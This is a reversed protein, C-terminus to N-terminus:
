LVLAVIAPLAALHRRTYYLQTSSLTMDLALPMIQPAVKADCELSSNASNAWHADSGKNWFMWRLMGNGRYAIFLTDSTTMFEHTRARSSEVGSWWIATSVQTHKREMNDLMVDVLSTIRAYRCNYLFLRRATCYELGARNVARSRNRCTNREFGELKYSGVRM